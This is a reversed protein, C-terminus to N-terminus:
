GAIDRALQLLGYDTAPPGHEVVEKLPVEVPLAGQIGIMIGSRGDVLAQIALAGSQSAIVRDRATPAGGRQIHGLVVVRHPYPMMKNVRDAVGFAGGAEDGEAVVIIHSRKGRARAAEIRNVLRDIDSHSEPVLVGVAGTAVATQIAIAGSHRGMVEVFFMMGTSESTDRVQDIARMASNVATDFGLTEETGWVDNDITGPIGVVDIGHEDSLALAGKFSGDGGIIILGDVKDNRLTEAAKARGEPERFEPCRSTGLVTGGRQIINGVSRDGLDTSQGFVLGNYGDQYGIVEIGRSSASREAARIAANMGPSDGGSTLIGLRRVM